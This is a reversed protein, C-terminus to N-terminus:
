LLGKEKLSMFGKSSVIVHDYLDIGMLEGARRVSRTFEVDDVSPTLSGSPHNHVLVFGVALHEIAPHLIERPHTRTTNLSGMSVTEKAILFNQADLYLGVLHEQRARRLEPVLAWAEQPKTVKPPDAEELRRLRRHLELAALLRGSRVPGLGYNERAEALTLKPLRDLGHRRVLREGVGAARGRGCPGVLIAVLESTRLSQVGRRRLKETPALDETDDATRPCGSDRAARFSVPQPEPVSM